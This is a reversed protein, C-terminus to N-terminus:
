QFDYIRANGHKKEKQLLKFTVKFLHWSCLTGTYARTFSNDRSNDEFIICKVSCHEASMLVPLKQVTNCYISHQINLRARVYRVCDVDALETHTHMGMM